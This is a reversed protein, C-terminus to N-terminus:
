CFFSFFNPSLTGGWPTSGVNHVDIKLLICALRLLPIYFTAAYKRGVIIQAECFYIFLEFFPDTHMVLLLSATHKSIQVEQHM